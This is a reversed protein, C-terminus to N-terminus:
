YRPAGSLIRLIRLIRLLEIFIDNDLCYIILLAPGRKTYALYDIVRWVQPSPANREIICIPTNWPSLDLFLTKEEDVRSFLADTVGYDSCSGALHSPGEVAIATYRKLM